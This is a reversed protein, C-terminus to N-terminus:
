REGEKQGPRLVFHNIASPMVGEEGEGGERGRKVEGKKQLPM